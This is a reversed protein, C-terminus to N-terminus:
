KAAKAVLAAYRAELQEDTLLSLSIDAAVHQSAKGWGRDLLEKCAAVRAADSDATKVLEGLTKIVEPTHERALTKLEAIEKPRGGPNGSKGKQFRGQTARNEPM